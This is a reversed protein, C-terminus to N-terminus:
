SRYDANISVYDHSLDSTWVHYSAEGLNLDIRITIEEQSFVAQGAEETYGVAPEGNEILAVDDIHIAVYRLDLPEIPAKGVAMLIRGWNPDSAFLATKVLPSNAVSYAIAECDDVSVGGEVVIKVFKTAGEADRVISTALTILVKELAQYFKVAQPSDVADIVPMSAVGSAVVVLADNTSTDGDVTIRNFSAENANSLMAQLAGQTIPADTAVYALLTAMNPCMMGSGKAMGSVTITQGDIEVQESVAKVVTDTTMIAAAAALWSDDDLDTVLAQIGNNIAEMPLQEGIVGTSFPLVETASLGLKQAVWECSKEANQMGLKGTGANANGANILLARPSSKRLNAKALTVPAACFHSQTFVAATTSGQPMTMLVMDDRGQYRIDATTAALKIGAVPLISSPASLKVAM